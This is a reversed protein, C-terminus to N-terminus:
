FNAIENMLIKRPFPFECIYAILGLANVLIFAFFGTRINPSPIWRGLKGAAIFWFAVFFIDIMAVYLNFKLIVVRVETPFFTAIGGILAGYLAVVAYFILFNM